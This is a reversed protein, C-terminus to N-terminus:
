FAYTPLYKLTSSTLFDKRKEGVAINFLALAELLKRANLFLKLVTLSQIVRRRATNAFEKPHV